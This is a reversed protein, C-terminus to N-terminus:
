KRYGIGVMAFDISTISKIDAVLGAKPPSYTFAVPAFTLVVNPTIAYDASLAGRVHFMSLAGSTVNGGTFPSEDINAFFLAGLGADVRVGLKPMVEYTVGANALLGWLQGTKSAGMMRSSEFPVPTFTLAAGAEVTLKPNIAIPHGAVLAFTAQVPVPNEGASVKTGGGILRASILHPAATAPVTVSGGDDADGGTAPGTTAAAVERPAEKHPPEAAPGKDVKEGGDGDPPLNNVPPKKSISSQQQVCAELEPIREEIEKRTKVPIPKVTDNAKLSLYRKYFFLANRCDNALRYAQAVNYLYTPKKSEDPELEFGQKFADVAKDFNGLNYQNAGEKYWEDATKPGAWALAPVLLVALCIKRM